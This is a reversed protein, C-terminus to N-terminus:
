FTMSVKMWNGGMPRITQRNWEMQSTPNLRNHKNTFDKYKQSNPRLATYTWNGVYTLGLGILIPAWNFNRVKDEGKGAFLNFTDAVGYAMLGTGGIFGTWRAINASMQKKRLSKYDPLLQEYVSPNSELLDKM